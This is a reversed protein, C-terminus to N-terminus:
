LPQFSVKQKRQPACRSMEQMRTVTPGYFEVLCTHYFNLTFDRACSEHGGSAHAGLCLIASTNKYHSLKTPNWWVSRAMRHPVQQMCSSIAAPTQGFVMLTQGPNAWPKGLPKGLLSMGCVKPGRKCPVHRQLSSAHCLGNCHIMLTRVSRGLIHSQTRGAAARLVMDNSPAIACQHDM